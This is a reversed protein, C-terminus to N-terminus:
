DAAPSCRSRMKKAWEYSDWGGSGKKGSQQTGKRPGGAGYGKNQFEACVPTPGM